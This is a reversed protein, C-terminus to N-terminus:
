LCSSLELILAHDSLKLQLSKAGHLTQVPGTGTTIDYVKIAGCIASFDIIVDDSGRTREDWVILEYQGTSKQLLLDHVEDPENRVSYDLYAPKYLPADDSLISTLNHIYTAALKPGSDSYIGQNGTGGENDRMEYIFTYRWGRKFQALYTNTLVTGQTRQGGANSTTDWGTETTVRPLSQLQTKAYGKYRKYWTVGNNGYLGDWRADLTPSAANWAQNNRYRDGNGSVYNHVNAYDSFRTGAPLMADTHPPVVLFQLGVNDTEAGVESPGFIPYNRLIPDHTITEYLDRQFGAIPMWTNDPGGGRTGNYTIAFNNPENPGEVALLANANAMIRAASVLGDLNGGANLTFRVGTKEHVLIESAINSAGDRVQRIGTYRLPEIYSVPDYGQAIHTNIGLSSLFIDASVASVSTSPTSPQVTGAVGSTDTIPAARPINRSKSSESAIMTTFVFILVLCCSRLDM